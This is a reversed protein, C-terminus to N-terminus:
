QWHNELEKIIIYKGPNYPKEIWTKAGNKLLFQVIVERKNRYSIALATFGDNDMANIDINNKVLLRVAPLFGIRSARMLYTRGFGDLINIDVNNKILLEVAELDFLEIAIDLPSYGLSNRLNPNAGKSLISAILDHKQMLTAYTLITDGARNRINPNRINNYSSNFSSVDGMTIARFALEIRESINPILPIHLNDNTRFRNLIPAAPLKESIFPSINKKRPIPINSNDNSDNIKILYNKRLEELKKLNEQRIKENLKRKEELKKQLIEQELDKKAKEVDKVLSAEYKKAKDEIKELIDKSNEVKKQPKEKKDGRHLFNQVKSLIGQKKETKKDINEDIMFPPAPIANKVESNKDENNKHTNKDNNEPKNQPKELSEVAIKPLNLEKQPKEPSKIPKEQNKPKSDPKKKSLDDLGLSELDIEIDDENFPELEAKKAKLEANLEELTQPLKDPAAFLPSTQSIFILITLVRLLM